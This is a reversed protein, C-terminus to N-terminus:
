RRAPAPKRHVEPLVVPAPLERLREIVADLVTLNLAARPLGTLISLGDGGDALFDPLALTYVADDDLRAGDVLRVNATRGGGTVTDYQVSLNSYYYQPGTQEVLRRLQLGSLAVRVLMNGFPLVRHLDGYTIPGAPLEARVGGPNYLAFDAAATRRESDAILQGLRRDGTASNLLPEALTTVRQGREADAARMFPALLDLLAMDEQGGDAYVTRRTTRFAHTGDALRYLDVVAVGRGSSGGRVIPISNVVGEGPDHAHGGAILQVLGAPLESALTVMEGRCGELDCDGGAHAVVVVFDPREAWLTELAERIGEYGSRFEYPRTVDPRLTRPTSATAYGVVGVRVGSREVIVFPKAWKPRESTGVRFVNAALWPYHAQRQRALLTDVGWDLDHNGVAAADLGLLNFAEVVPLGWALNSELTGQMQDGGDVWVAPCLCAAVTSDVVRGLAAAGGVPRGESWGYTAPRLAGHFDHTAVIRVHLPKTPTQGLGATPSTWLALFAVVLEVTVPGLSAGVHARTSISM